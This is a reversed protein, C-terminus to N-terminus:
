RGAADETVGLLDFRIVGNLTLRFDRLAPSRLCHARTRLLPVRPALERWRAEAREWVRDALDAGAGGGTGEAGGGAEAEDIFADLVADSLGVQRALSHGSHWPGLLAAPHPFDAATLSYLLAYRRTTAEQFYQAFPLPRATVSLGTINRLQRALEAVARGNPEFDAFGITLDDPAASRLAAIDPEDYPAFEDGGGWPQMHSWWATALGDTVAALHHRDIIRALASRAAASRLFGGAQAGFELNAFLLIDRSVLDHRGALSALTAPDFNTTPSVDLGGASYASLVDASTRLERFALRSPLTVSGEHGERRTLIIDGERWCPWSYWGLTATEDVHRPAFGPMSLIAHMSSVPRVLHIDVTHSDIISIGGDPRERAIYGAVASGRQSAVKRIAREADDAHLQAGNSWCLRDDLSIRWTLGGRTPSIDIAAARGPPGGPDGMVLPRLIAQAILLGNFDVPRHFDRTLPMEDLGIVVQRM